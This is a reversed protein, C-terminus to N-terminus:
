TVVVVLIYLIEILGLLEMKANLRRRGELAGLWCQGVKLQEIKGKRSNCMVPNM